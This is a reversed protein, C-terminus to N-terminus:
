KIPVVGSEFSSMHTVAKRGEEIQWKFFSFDMNKLLAKSCKIIWFSAM